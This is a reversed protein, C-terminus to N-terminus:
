RVRVGTEDLIRLLREQRSGFLMGLTVTRTVNADTYHIRIAPTPFWRHFQVREAFHINEVPMDLFKLWFFNLFLRGSQVRLLLGQWNIWSDDFYGHVLWM